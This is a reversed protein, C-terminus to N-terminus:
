VLHAYKLIAPLAPYYIRLIGFTVAVTVLFAERYYKQTLPLLVGVASLVVFSLTLFRVFYALVVFVLSIAAGIGALAIRKGVDRSRM